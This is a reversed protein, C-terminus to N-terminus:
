DGAIIHDARSGGNLFDADDTGYHTDYAGGPLTAM